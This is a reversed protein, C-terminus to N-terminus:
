KGACLFGAGTRGTPFRRYECVDGIRERSSPNEIVLRTGLEEDAPRTKLEVEAVAAISALAEGRFGMTRLAFLDGAERIKSTAHREFSLRADTESMGKGDDVVQISTKGADEVVVDIRTASADVANEVLEKAENKAIERAIFREFYKKAIEYAQMFCEDTDVTENWCPNFASIVSALEVFKYDTDIKTSQGNDNADIYQILDKDIQLFLEEIHEKKVNCKELYNIGYSKWILGCSAYKVGNDRQGNGGAQHHDFEGGGIDYVLKNAISERMSDTVENVRIM